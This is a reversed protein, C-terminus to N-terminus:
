YIIMVQSMKNTRNVRSLSARDYSCLIGVNMNWCYPLGAWKWQSTRRYRFVTNDPCEIPRADPFSWGSNSHGGLDGSMVGQFKKEKSIHWLGPIQEVMAVHGRQGLPMSWQLPSSYRHVCKSAHTALIQTNYRHTNQWAHYMCPVQRITMKSLLPM